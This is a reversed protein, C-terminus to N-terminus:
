YGAMIVVLLRDNYGSTVQMIIVELLRDNYGSTVRAM